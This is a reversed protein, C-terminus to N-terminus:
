KRTLKQSHLFLYAPNDYHLGGCVECKYEVEYSIWEPEEIDVLKIMSIPIGKTEKNCSGCEYVIYPLKYIDDHNLYVIPITEGSKDLIEAIRIKLQEVEYKVERM